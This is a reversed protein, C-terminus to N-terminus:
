CLRQDSNYYPKLLRRRTNELLSRSRSLHYKYADQVPRFVFYKIFHVTGFIHLYYFFLVPQRQSFMCSSEEWWTLQVPPLSKPNWKNVIGVDRATNLLFCDLLVHMRRCYGMGEWVNSTRLAAYLILLHLARISTYGWVSPSDPGSPFLPRYVVARVKLFRYFHFICCCQWKISIM